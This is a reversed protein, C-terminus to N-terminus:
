SKPDKLGKVPVKVNFVLVAVHHVITADQMNRVLYSFEGETNKEEEVSIFQPHGKITEPIKGLVASFDDNRSFIILALRSDRWCAYGLLQDLTQKFGQEGKWFKCEAIFINKGEIRILIDTKGQYNFTEGTAQGQYQGNLQVLFHDRLHEEEMKEFAAPSREIVHYMNRCVKLIHRYEQFDLTPDLSPSNTITTESRSQPIVKRQITPITYTQPADDRKRVSFGLNALLSSDKRIKDARQQLGQLAISKLQTNFHSFLTELSRLKGQIASIDRDISSKIASAEHNVVIHELIVQENTVRGRPIHGGLTNGRIFFVEKDGNFPIYVTIKTAPISSEQGPFVHFQHPYHRADAKTEDGETQIGDIKITPVNVKFKEFLQNALVEPSESLLTKQPIQDISKKLEQEQHSQVAQYDVKSFLHDQM